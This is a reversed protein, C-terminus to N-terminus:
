KSTKFKSSIYTLKDKLEFLHWFLYIGKVRKQKILFILFSQGKSLNMTDNIFKSLYIDNVISALQVLKEKKSTKKNCVIQRTTYILVNAAYTNQLKKLDSLNNFRTLIDNMKDYVLRRSEWFHMSYNSSLSMENRHKHYIYFNENSVWVTQVYKLYELNFHLDEAFNLSEDFYISNETIISKLFMKNVPYSILNKQLNLFFIDMFRQMKYLGEGTVQIENIKDIKYNREQYGTIYYDAENYNVEDFFNFFRTIDIEDDVDCFSIYKGKAMRIGYNRASSVGKNEQNLVIVNRHEMAFSQGIEGTLDKSGDNVIIIECFDKPIEILSQLLNNLYKEANYAPIIISLQIM